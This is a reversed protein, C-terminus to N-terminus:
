VMWVPCGGGAYSYEKQAPFSAHASGAFASLALLALGILRLANRMGCGRSLLLALGHLLTAGEASKQLKEM